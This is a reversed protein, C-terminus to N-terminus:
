AFRLCTTNYLQSQRVCECTCMKLRLRRKNIFSQANYKITSLTATPVLCNKCQKLWHGDNSPDCIWWWVNVLMSVNEACLEYLGRQHNKKEAKRRPESQVYMVYYYLDLQTVFWWLSMCLCVFNHMAILVSQTYIAM